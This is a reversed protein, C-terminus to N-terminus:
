ILAVGATQNSTKLSRGLCSGARLILSFARKVTYENRDKSRNQQVELVVFNDFKTLVVIM